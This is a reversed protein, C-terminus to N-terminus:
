LTQLVQLTPLLQQLSMDWHQLCLYTCCSTHLRDECRICGLNTNRQESRNIDHWIIFTGIVLHCCVVQLHRSLLGIQGGLPDFCIDQGQMTSSHVVSCGVRKHSMFLCCLSQDCRGGLLSTEAACLTEAVLPTKALAMGSTAFKCALQGLAQAAALRMKAVDFGEEGGVIHKTAGPRSGAPLLADSSAPMPFKLLHKSPLVCGAPTCALDFLMTTLQPSAVTNLTDPPVSALLSTWAGQSASLISANAEM